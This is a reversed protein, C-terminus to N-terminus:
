CPVQAYDLSFGSFTAVGGGASPLTRLNVVFPVNELSTLTGPITSRPASGFVTDCRMSAAITVIDQQSAAPTPANGGQGPIQPVGTRIVDIVSSPITVHNRTMCNDTVVPILGRDLDFPDPSTIQSEAYQVACFGDNQRICNSYAQDGLLQGGQFNYSSITGTDETFFQTCGSPARVRSNCPIYSVKINYRREAAGSGQLIDIQGATSGIRGSEFYLHQGTLAGCIAPPFANRSSSHPSIVSLSDGTGGCSGAVAGLPLTTTPQFDLRIQCIDSAFRNLMVSCTRANNTDAGPFGANRVFTCNRNVMGGCGTITFVCCVGFGAACNGDAAGGQAACEQASFCTGALDMNSTATCPDNAFRVINFLSFLRKQRQLGHLSSNQNLSVCGM